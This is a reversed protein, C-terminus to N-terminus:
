EQQEMLLDQLILEQDQEMLSEELLEVPVMLPLEQQEQHEM